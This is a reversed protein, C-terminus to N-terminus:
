VCLTVLGGDRDVDLDQCRKQCKRLRDQHDSVQSASAKTYLRCLAVPTLSPVHVILYLSYTLLVKTTSAKRCSCTDHFAILIVKKCYLLDCNKSEFIEIM